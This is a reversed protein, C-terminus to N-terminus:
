RSTEETIKVGLGSSSLTRAYFYIAGSIISVFLFLGIIWVLLRKGWQKKEWAFQPATKPITGLVPLQMVREVEEISKFSDDMYETVLLAGFGCIAGFIVSVLVVKFKDPKVPKIPRQATEIINLNLGLNTSQVAESIQASAKSELFAQHIARNNEVERRLRELEKELVPKRAMNNEYQQIYRRVSNRMSQYHDLRSRQYFYEAIIPHYEDSIDSYEEKVVTSIRRRLSEWMAEIRSELSETDTRGELEALIKQDGAASLRNEINIVEEDGAVEESTPVMDFIASLRSRIGKLAIRTRGHESDLNKEKIRAMNINTEDVPNSPSISSSIENEVRALEKESAELKERYIALQEDSFAGARRIAELKQKQQVELYKESIKKALVYANGPDTDLVGIEYFGSAPSTIEIKNSLINIFYRRVREVPSVGPGAESLKRALREANVTNMLGLDSVVEKLFSNSKLKATIMSLYQRNRFDRNSQEENIYRDVSSSFISETEMSLVTSSKFVPTLYRVGFVSILASLCLPVLLYYKKRWIVKWYGKIDIRERDQDPVVKRVNEV